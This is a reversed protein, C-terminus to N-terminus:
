DHLARDVMEGLHRRKEIRWVAWRAAHCGVTAAAGVAAYFWPRLLAASVTGARRRRVAALTEGANLAAVGLAYRALLPVRASHPWLAVHEIVLIAATLAAGEADHEDVFERLM